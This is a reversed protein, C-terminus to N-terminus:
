VFHLADVASMKQTCLYRNTKDTHLLHQKSNILHQELVKYNSIKSEKTKSKFHPSGFKVVLPVETMQMLESTTMKCYHERMQVATGREM